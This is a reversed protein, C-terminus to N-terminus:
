NILPQSSPSSRMNESFSADIVSIETVLADIVMNNQRRYVHM